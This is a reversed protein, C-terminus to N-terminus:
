KKRGYFPNRQAGRMPNHAALAPNQRFPSAHMHMRNRNKSERNSLTVNGSNINQRKTDGLQEAQCSVIAGKGPVATTERATVSLSQKKEAIETLNNRLVPDKIESAIMNDKQGPINDQASIKYIIIVLFSTIILKQKM